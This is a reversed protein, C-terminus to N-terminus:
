TRGKREKYGLSMLAAPSLIRNVMGEGLKSKLFTRLDCEATEDYEKVIKEAKEYGIEPLFATIITPSVGVHSACVGPRSQIASVHKSLMANASILISISELLASSILPLFENIQLSGKSVCDSIISHNAIVRMGASIGAELIVPNIKGPMISSGAQVPPVEIEKLFHLMRLDNCIKQLNSAQASLIGSVEVFVDANATQEVVNEARSLGYGTLQRIKEIVLFIYRRPATLGTGVATGGLNVVRLREECKFTRWRDRAVAEAFSGFQAGLTIPVADQLETRGITVIGAWLKEKSQFEGQLLATEASLKRVGEIAAVKWPQQIFM